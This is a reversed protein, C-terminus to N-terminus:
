RGARYALDLWALYADVLAQYYEDGASDVSLDATRKELSSSSGSELNFAAIAAVELAQERALAVSEVNITAAKVTAVASEWAAEDSAAQRVLAKKALELSALADAKDDSRFDDLSLSFRLTASPTITGGAPLGLNVGLSLDPEFAWIAAASAEDSEVGLTAVLLSYSPAASGEMIGALSSELTKLEQELRDLELGTLSVEDASSGIASYLSVLATRVSAESKLLSSRASSWARLASVLDDTTTIDPEIANSAKAAEYADKKLEVDKRLTELKRQQSMWSLAAKIANTAATKGAEVTAAQAKEHAILAMTRSASHSLPNVSAGLSANLSDDISLSVGVQEIIPVNASASLGLSPLGDPASAYSASTSISSSDLKFVSPIADLASREVIQAKAYELSNKKGLAAIDGLSSLTVPEAWASALLMGALALAAVTRVVRVPLKINM